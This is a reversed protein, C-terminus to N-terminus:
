NAPKMSLEVLIRLFTGEIPGVQMQPFDMKAYTEDRLEDLLPAPRNTHAEAYAEIDEPVLVFPM